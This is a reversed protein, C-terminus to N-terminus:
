RSQRVSRILGLGIVLIGVGAATAVWFGRAVAPRMWDDMRVYPGSGSAAAMAAELYHRGAVVIAQDLIVNWVVVAWVIWLGTALRVAHKPTVGRM